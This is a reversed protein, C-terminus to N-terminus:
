SKIEEFKLDPGHGFSYNLGMGGSEHRCDPMHWLDCKPGHRWSMGAILSMGYIMNPGMGRPRDAQGEHLQGFLMM